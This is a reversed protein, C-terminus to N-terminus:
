ASRCDEGRTEESSIYVQDATATSVPINTLKMDRHSVRHSHAHAVAARVADCLM